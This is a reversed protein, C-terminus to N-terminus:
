KQGYEKGELSGKKALIANVKVIDKCYGQSIVVPSPFCACPCLGQGGDETKPTRDGKSDSIVHCPGWLSYAEQPLM